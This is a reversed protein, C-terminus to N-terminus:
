AEEISTLLRETVGAYCEGLQTEAQAGERRPIKGLLPLRTTQLMALGAAHSPIDERVLTAVIGLIRPGYGLKEHIENVKYVIREVGRVSMASPQAPVVVGDAAILASFTLSGVNPPCDIVVFGPAFKSVRYADIAMKLRLIGLPEVALDDAVDDLDGNAPVIAGDQGLTCAADILPTATRRRLVDAITHAAGDPVGCARSLNGQGDLDILTVTQWLGILAQALHRATTTKGTGGKNNAVAITYM